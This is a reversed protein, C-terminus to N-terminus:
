FVSSLTLCVVTPISAALRALRRFQVSSEVALIIASVSLPLIPPWVTALAFLPQFPQAPIPATLCGVILCDYPSLSAPVFVLVSLRFVLGHGFLRFPVIWSLHIHTRIKNKANTVSM